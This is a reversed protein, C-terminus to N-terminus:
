VNAILHGSRIAAKSRYLSELMEEVWLSISHEPFHHKRITELYATGCAWALFSSYEQQQVELLKFKLLVKAAHQAHRKPDAVFSQLRHRATELALQVTSFPRGHGPIVIAPELSEILALTHGIDAFAQIGELEPFVIGFGNEWLADASILTRTQPEFLVISHPDHGPAAHIQWYRDGLFVEQSPQLLHSYTFQPCNQGTPEFSLSDSAWAAILHAQGPPIWTQMGPYQTQLMSNGGCHDSHLHTNLLMDLPRDGLSQNLLARLLDSHTAYGSDILVSHQKSQILISNSSLWGREFVTLGPPFELAMM